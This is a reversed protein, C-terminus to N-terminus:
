VCVGIIFVISLLLLPLHSFVASARWGGHARTHVCACAHGGWTHLCVHFFCFLLFPSLFSPGLVASCPSTSCGWLLPVDRRGGTCGSMRARPLWAQCATRLCLQERQSYSRIGVGAKGELPFGLGAPVLPPLHRHFPSTQRPLYSSVSM